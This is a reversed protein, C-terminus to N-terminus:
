FWRPVRELATQVSALISEPVPKAAAVAKSALAPVGVAAATHPSQVVKANDQCAVMTKVHEAEDDRINCFVDYLSAMSPRRTGPAISTQFEDFMYIDEALYYKRAIEPAPLTKLKEANEEVFQAYTSFAHAEVIESFNYALSPSVLWLTGLVWFYFVAAHQAFFRDKWLQDGGLSEMILLHHFENWEEAFHVRKVAAGVRWWGLTEYLHLMSIYSFYPIRAVTELVWFRQIPKGNYLLDLAWCLMLYPIKIIPPAKIPTRTQERQWVAKDNLTLTELEARLSACRMADGSISCLDPDLPDDVECQAPDLAKRLARLERSFNKWALRFVNEPVASPVADDTYVGVTASNFGYDCPRGDPPLYANRPTMQREVARLAAEAAALAAARRDREERLERVAAESSAADLQQEEAPRSAELVARAPSMVCAKGARRRRSSLKVPLIGELGVGLAARSVVAAAAVAM